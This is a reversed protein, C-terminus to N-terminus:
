HKLWPFMSIKMAKHISCSSALYAQPHVCSSKSSTAAWGEVRKTNIYLNIPTGMAMSIRIQNLIAWSIPMWLLPGKQVQFFRLWVCAITGHAFMNLKCNMYLNHVNSVHVLDCEQNFQILAFDM